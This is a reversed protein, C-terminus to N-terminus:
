LRPANLSDLLIQQKARASHIDGYLKELLKINSFFTSREYMNETTPLIGLYQLYWRAFCYHAVYRSWLFNEGEFGANCKMELQTQLHQAGGALYDSARDFVPMAAFHDAPFGAVTVVEDM